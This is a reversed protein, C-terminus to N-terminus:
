IEAINLMKASRLVAEAAATPQGHEDNLTFAAYNKLRSNGGKVARVLVRIAPKGNGPIVPFVAISGFAPQLTELVEDLGDARWILTLVGQPKLLWAAAAIWRALLEPTRTRALRRRPDPSLNHRRADLFPPNMLVRDISERAL